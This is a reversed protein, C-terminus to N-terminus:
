VAVEKLVHDAVFIPVMTAIGLAIADSPRSDVEVLRDQSRIFLRAYFTGQQLDNIEIKELQGGMADIISALLDHTMPRPTPNGKLRRDIAMAEVPGIVITFQREGDVEKLWILQRDQMESIVIKSLEMQVAMLAELL